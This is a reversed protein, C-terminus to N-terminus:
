TVFSRGQQLGFYENSGLFLLAFTIPNVAGANLLSVANQQGVADPPRNLYTLYNQGTALLYTEPSSLFIFAVARRSQGGGQIEGVWFAIEAPSATRSFVDSYLGFVFSTASLHSAQYEPSALLNLAVESETMGAMLQGTWFAEGGPDPNHHFIEVYLQDVERARHEPSLLFATAVQSRATGADLQGVWQLFGSLDFSRQLIDLYLGLVYRQNPTLVVQVSTSGSNSAFNSDGSYQATIAYTQSAALLATSTFTASGNVLPASGLVTSGALFTITGTPSTSVSASPVVTATFTISHTFIATPTPTTVTVTTTVTQSLELVVTSPTYNIQFSQGNDTPFVAGNPLGNFSQSVGGVSRSQIITFPVNPPAQFPPSQVDDVQLNAGGLTVTGAYVLQSYGSGATTGDLIVEFNSGQSFTVDGLSTLQAPVFRPGPNSGEVGGRLLFLGPLVTGGSAVIGGVTGDGRLTASQLSSIGGEVTVTSLVTGDVELTGDVVTTPGSYSNLTGTLVLTGSGV